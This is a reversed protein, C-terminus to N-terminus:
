HVRVRVRIRLVYVHVHLRRFASVPPPPDRELLDAVRRASHAFARPASPAPPARPPRPALPLVCNALQRCVPCLFEGREVHLNHPRQPAALARLYAHLCRLHLHHGCTAVHVGGEWGVSVSM